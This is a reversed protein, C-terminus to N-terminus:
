ASIAIEAPAQSLASTFEAEFVTLASRLFGAAGDPHRCAGRGIVEASWRGLRQLDRPDAAGAALSECTDALARLGFFCPGCQAASQSALYRMIRASEAVPSPHAGLVSVVGCGLPLAARGASQAGLPLDWARAAEHWTGFYGGVLVARAEEIVGGALAVAEGLPTGAPLEVVGPAAVAGSVTVLVTGPSGPRGQARFWAAGRRAILAVHALSEVNQVLTPLGAVGREFPRPPLATPAAVGSNVFNVAASEEGTVYGAPAVVVEVLRAQSAPREALARRMAVTARPHDEGLYLIVRDAGVAEAALLAGDLVLHPRCEMLMQDKRSLPEGESGNALVVASGRRRRAVAQWKVAVPFSAGGRGLLGSEALSELLGSSGPLAGVRATHDALTEAGAAPPPGGLVNLRTM